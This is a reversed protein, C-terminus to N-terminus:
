GHIAEGLAAAAAEMIGEAITPHPHVTSIIDSASVGEKVMYTLGAIMETVNLGTLHAGLLKRADSGEFVLKVLGDRAGAAAAKGSAMMSFKGITVEYGKEIAQAETLGVSAVECTTYICSPIASYDVSHSPHGCIGEVCAIAEATAVHALAATAIVDGIAYIGAISTQYSKSDVTIKGRQTTIGVQELGINEINAEIGVASLVIDAELTQEGKKGEILVSCGSDTTTVGKVATSTMVTIKKKRLVRELTASIETDELPAVRDVYEVITVKAGLTSYFTAFELGIAGSGVVVISRPLEKLCLAEKSTIVRVGDVPIAEVRRPRAGTAIIINEAEYEIGAVEVVGARIIRGEGYIVEVNNKKMLFEVGKNMQSAVGRSRDVIASLDASVGEGTNVGYTTASAAYEYVQSSKLLAKTPICGWNLCVGGLEAREVIAVRKGLQSARVAGAYGGPGSGIIIIDYM